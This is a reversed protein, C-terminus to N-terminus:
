DKIKKLLNMGYKELSEAYIKALILLLVNTAFFLTIFTGTYNMRSYLYDFLLLIVSCMLPWHLLYLSFSAKSWFVIKKSGLFKILPKVGEILLLFLIAYVGNWYINMNMYSPIDYYQRLINILSNHGGNALLVVCLFLVISDYTHLVKRKMKWASPLVGGLLTIVLYWYSTGKIWGYVLLGMIEVVFICTASEKGIKKRLYNYLYINCSGIFIPTLSWIPANLTSDFLFIYKICLNATIKGRYFGDLWPNELIKGITDVRFDVGYAVLLIIILSLFLPIVFRLYRYLLEKGLNRLSNIERNYALAGCILCFICVWFSGNSMLSTRQIGWKVYGHLSAQALNSCQYFMLVFHNWLVGFCAVLKLGDIWEIRAKM